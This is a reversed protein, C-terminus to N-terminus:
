DKRLNCFNCKHEYSELLVTTASNESCFNQLSWFTDHTEDESKEIVQLKIKKNINGEEINEQKPKEVKVITLYNSHVSDCAHKTVQAHLPLHRGCTAQFCSLCINLSHKPSANPALPENYPSEFCYICEDKSVVAPVTINELLAEAM